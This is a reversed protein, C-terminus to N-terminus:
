RRERNSRVKQILTFGYRHILLAADEMADDGESAMRPAAEVCVHLFIAVQSVKLDILVSFSPVDRLFSISNDVM